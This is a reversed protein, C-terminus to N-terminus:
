NSRAADIDQWGLMGEFTMTAPSADTGTGTAFLKEARTAKRKCHPMIGNTMASNPGFADAIGQRVNLKSPNIYGQKTMWEWIRAKGATLSDVSTWVFGNGMVEEVPVHTRWVIFDPSANLNLYAALAYFGDTDIPYASMVPDANITARLTATQAATLPM